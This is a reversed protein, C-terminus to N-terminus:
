AVAEAVREKIHELIANPDPRLRQATNIMGHDLKGDPGVIRRRSNAQFVKDARCLQSFDGAPSAPLLFFRPSIQFSPPTTVHLVPLSSWSLVM